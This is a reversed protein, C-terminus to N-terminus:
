ICFMQKRFCDSWFFATSRSGSDRSKEDFFLVNNYGTQNIKIVSEEREGLTQESPNKGM